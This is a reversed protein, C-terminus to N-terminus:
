HVATSVDAGYKRRALALFARMDDAAYDPYTWPLPQYEGKQFMLTLDAYIGQGIHIRHTYNKGTALVFRELLLYGPDINLCRRGEVAFREELANTVYKIGALRDQDILERFVLMRRYLPGGMEAKYYDTYDFRFWPSIMDLPGFETRLADVVEPLMSKEKLFVGIVLKARPPPSPHSM